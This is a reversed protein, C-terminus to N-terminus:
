ARLAVVSDAWKDLGPRLGGYYDPSASGTPVFVLRREPDAAMVSWANAAGTLWTRGKGSGASGTPNPPVPDWNWRPAGTRADFARVVGSPMDARTNDDIGSGVVVLDDVM